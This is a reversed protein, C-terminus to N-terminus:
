TIFIFSHISFYEAHSCHHHDDVWQLTEVGYKILGLGYVDRWQQCYCCRGSAFKMTVECSDVNYVFIMWNHLIM